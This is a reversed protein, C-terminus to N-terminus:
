SKKKKTKTIQAVSTMKQTACMQNWDSVAWSFSMPARHTIQRPERSQPTEPDGFPRPYPLHLLLLSTLNSASSSPFFRHGLLIRERSVPGQVSPLDCLPDRRRSRSERARRAGGVRGPSVNSAGFRGFGLGKSVAGPM